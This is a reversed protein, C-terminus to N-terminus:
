HSCREARREGVTKGQQIQPQDAGFFPIVGVRYFWRRPAALLDRPRYCLEHYFAGNSAPGLDEGLGTDDSRRGRLLPPPRLPAAVRLATLVASALPPQRFSGAVMDSVRRYYSGKSCRAAWSRMKSVSVVGPLTSPPLSFGTSKNSQQVERTQHKM